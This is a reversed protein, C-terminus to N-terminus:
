PALEEIIRRSLKRTASKHVSNMAKVEEVGLFHIVEASGPNGVGGRMVRGTRSRCQGLSGKLEGLCTARGILKHITCWRLCLTPALSLVLWRLPSIVASDSKSRHSESGLEMWGAISWGADIPRLTERPLM